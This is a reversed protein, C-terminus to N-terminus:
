NPGPLATVTPEPAVAVARAAPLRTVTMVIEEYPLGGGM